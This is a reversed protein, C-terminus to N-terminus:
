KFDRMFKRLAMEVLDDRTIRKTEAVKKSFVEFSEFTEDSLIYNPKVEPKRPPLNNYEFELGKDFRTRNKYLVKLYRIEEKTLLNDSNIRMKKQSKRLKHNM